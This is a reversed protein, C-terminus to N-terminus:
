ANIIIIIIFFFFMGEECSKDSEGDSPSAKHHLPRKTRHQGLTPTQYATMISGSGGRSPTLFTMSPPTKPRNNTPIPAMLYMMSHNTQQRPEHTQDVSYPSMYMTMPQHFASSKGELTDKPISTEVSIQPAPRNDITQLPMM